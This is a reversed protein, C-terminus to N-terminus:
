KNPPPEPSYQWTQEVNGKYSFLIVKPYAGADLSLEPADPDPFVALIRSDERITWLNIWEPNKDDAPRLACHTNSTANYPFALDFFKGAKDKIQFIVNNSGSIDVIDWKAFPLRTKNPLEGKVALVVHFDGESNYEAGLWNPDQQGTRSNFVYVDAPM